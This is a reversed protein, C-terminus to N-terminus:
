LISCFLSSFGSTIRRSNLTVAVSFIRIAAAIDSLFIVRDDLSVNGRSLLGQLYDFTLADREVESELFYDKKLSINGGSFEFFNQKFSLRENKYCVIKEIKLSKSGGGEAKFRDLLPLGPYSSEFFCIWQGNIKKYGAMDVAGPNDKLSVIAVGCGKCSKITVSLMAYFPDIYYIQGNFGFSKRLKDELFLKNVM